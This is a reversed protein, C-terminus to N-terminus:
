HAALISPRIENTSLGARRSRRWILGSPGLVPNTERRIPVMHLTRWSITRSTFSDQRRRRRSYILIYIPLVLVSHGAVCLATRARGTTAITIAARTRSVCVQFLASHQCLGSVDKNNEDHIVVRPLSSSGEADDDDNSNCGRSLIYKAENWTRSCWWRTACEFV